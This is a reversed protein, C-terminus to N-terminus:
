PVLNRLARKAVTKHGPNVLNVSVASTEFKPVRGKIYGRLAMALLTQSRFPSNAIARADNRLLAVKQSQMIDWAGAPAVSNAGM